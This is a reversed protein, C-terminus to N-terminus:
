CNELSFDGDRTKGTELCFCNRLFVFPSIIIIIIIIIMIMIMIM